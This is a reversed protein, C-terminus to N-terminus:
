KVRPDDKRRSTMSRDAQELRVAFSKNQLAAITERVVSSLSTSLERELARVASETIKWQREIKPLLRLTRPTLEILRERGDTGPRSRAFGGKVMQAVTQSIASHSVGAQTSIDKISMRNSEILARVIPTFRPRYSKDISSYATEVAGDLVEILHRLLTGLTAPHSKM